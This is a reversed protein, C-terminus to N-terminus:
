DAGTACPIDALGKLIAAVDATRGDAEDVVRGDKLFIIRDAYAADNPDHTVMIITQGREDCAQRLLSMVEESNGSDLNGTPEDALLIAPKTVLARAVATRQQEGGSMADPFHDARRSMGVSALIGAAQKNAEKLRVGDILLPLAVNELGTLVPILNFSQFIFGIRRRRLKTIEGERRKALEEGDISISGSTSRDLGGLLHLLTSKGSGSAGMVAVFEGPEVALTLNVLADVELEGQRYTKQLNDARLIKLCTSGRRV